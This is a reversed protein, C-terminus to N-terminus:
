VFFFVFCSLTILPLLSFVISIPFLACECVNMNAWKKGNNQIWAACFFFLRHVEIFLRLISVLDLSNCGDQTCSGHNELRFVYSLANTTNVFTYISVSLFLGDGNAGPQIAQYVTEILQCRILYHVFHAYTTILKRKKQM